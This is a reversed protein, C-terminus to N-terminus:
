LLNSAYIVTLVLFIIATILDIATVISVILISLFTKEEM